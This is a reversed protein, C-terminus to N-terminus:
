KILCKGLRAKDKDVVILNDYGLSNSGVELVAVEIEHPRTM